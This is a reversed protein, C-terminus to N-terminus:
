YREGSAVASSGSSFKKAKLIFPHRMLQSAAPREEPDWVFCSKLFDSLESSLNQPIPPMQDEVMRFLVQMASLEHYPRRGTALEMITCGLSWIDVSTTYPRYEVMEPAIYWPTGVMHQQGPNITQVNESSSVGFDCIKVMASNDVLINAPKLDRHTVGRSHLYELGCLVQRAIEAVLTEPFASYQALHEALSLGDVYEVVLNLNGNDGVFSGKFEVVNEHHLGKWVRQEKIAKKDVVAGSNLFSKIAVLEDTILNKALLVIGYGGRGLVQGLEFLEKSMDGDTVEALMRSREDEVSSLLQENGRALQEDEGDDYQQSALQRLDSPKRGHQPRGHSPKPGPQRTNRTVSLVRGTSRFKSRGNESGQRRRADAQIHNQFDGPRSGWNDRESDFKSGPDRISGRSGPVGAVGGGRSREEGTNLVGSNMLRMSARSLRELTQPMAQSTSGTAREVERCDDLIAQRLDYLRNTPQGALAAQKVHIGVAYLVKARRTASGQALVQLARRATAVLQEPAEPFCYVRLLVTTGDCISLADASSKADCCVTAIARTLDFAPVITAFSPCQSLRQLLVVLGGAERVAARNKQTVAVNGVLRSAEAVVELDEAIDLARFATELGDAAIIGKHWRAELAFEALVNVVHFLTEDNKTRRGLSTLSSLGSHKIIYSQFRGGHHALNAIAAASELLVDSDAVHGARGDIITLLPEVCGYRAAQVATPQSGGLLNRLGRCASTLIAKDEVNKPNILWVLVPVVGAEVLVEEYQDHVSLEAIIFTAQRRMEMTAADFKLLSILSVPLGDFVMKSRSPTERPAVSAIRRIAVDIDSLRRAELAAALDRHPWSTSSAQTPSAVDRRSSSPSTPPHGVATAARALQQRSQQHASSTGANHYTSAGSTGTVLRHQHQAESPAHPSRPRQRRGAGSGSDGSPNRRHHPQQQNYPASAGSAHARSRPDRAERAAATASASRVIASAASVSPSPAHSASPATNATTSSSSASAASPSLPIRVPQAAKVSRRRDTTVAKEAAQPKHLQVHKPKRPAPATPGPPAGAASSGTAAAAAAKRASKAAAKDANRQHRKGRRKEKSAGAPGGNTTAAAASAASAVAHVVNPNAAGNPAATTINEKGLAQGPPPSSPVPQAVAVRKDRRRFLGMVFRDSSHLVRSFALSFSNLVVDTGVASIECSVGPRVQTGPSGCM